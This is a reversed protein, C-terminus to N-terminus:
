ALGRTKPRDRPSASTPPLKRRAQVRINKLLDDLYLKIFADDMVTHSNQKLIKEFERPALRPTPPPLPTCPNLGFTLGTALGHPAEPKPAGFTTACTPM